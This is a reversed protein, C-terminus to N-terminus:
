NVLFPFVFGEEGRCFHSIFHSWSVPFDDAKEMSILDKLCAMHNYWSVAVDKPNRVIHVVKYGNQIHKQPLDPILVHTNLVRTSNEPVSALTSLDPVMELMGVRKYVSDYEASGKMMMVLIENM